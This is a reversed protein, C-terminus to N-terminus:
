GKIWVHELLSELSPRREPNPSLCRRILNKLEPSLSPKLVLKYATIDDEDEFPLRGCVQFLSNYEITKLLFLFYKLTGYRITICRSDM